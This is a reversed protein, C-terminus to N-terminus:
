FGCCLAVALTIQPRFSPWRLNVPLRVEGLAISVVGSSLGFVDDPSSFSFISSGAGVQGSVCRLVLVTSLLNMLWLLELLFLDSPWKWQSGLVESGRLESCCLFLGAILLILLCLHSDVDIVSCAPRMMWFGCCLAVVVTIQPRFAPWCLEMHLRVAGLAISVVGSSLGSVNGTTLYLQGNGSYGNGLQTSM